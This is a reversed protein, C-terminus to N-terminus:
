WGTDAVFHWNYWPNGSTAQGTINVGGYGAEGAQSISTVARDLNNPLDRVANGGGSITSLAVVNPSKAMKKPFPYWGLLASFNVTAIPGISIAGSSNNPTAPAVGYPYSKCYYRLCEDYNQTFPKDMFTSCVSGPEHSVFAIDFTSNVPSAAFNSMGPVGIFNGSQWTGAAPAILTTGCALAIGITYGAAGPLTSFNGSPFVPLNPINILTFTNATPITCLAALFRTTPSDAVTVGFNLGAVSSRVLLSISHVDQSLERFQVGEVTQLIRLYDSAGLSAQATTLTIRQYARSLCFSTGPVLVNVTNSTVQQTGVAATLTGGKALVWRDQVFTGSAPSVLPNGVNRQDVEFNPNGIANFSRLRTSWIQAQTASGGLTSVPVQAYAGSKLILAIDTPDATGATPKSTYFAPQIVSSATIDNLKAATIGKEGDVFVRSTVIDAM